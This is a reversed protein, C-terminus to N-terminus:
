FNLLLGHLVRLKEENLNSILNVCDEKLEERFKGQKVLEDWDQWELNIATLFKEVYDKRIYARGNESHNIRTQPVEMLTALKRQSLGSKLRLAKLARSEQTTRQFRSRKPM